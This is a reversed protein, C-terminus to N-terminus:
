PSDASRKTLADEERLRRDILFPGFPVLAAFFVMLVRKLPWEVATWAQILLVCFLLFLVGHAMGAIRVAMPMDALYKLPMAVGLLLLFSAGEVMGM